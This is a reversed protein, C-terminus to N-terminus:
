PMPGLLYPDPALRNAVRLADAEFLELALKQALMVDGVVLEGEPMFCLVRVSRGNKDLQVVNAQSGSRIRYRRGTEGGIVDFYGRREYQDRQAPSLNKKLLRFGRAHAERTAASWGWLTRLEFRESASAIIFNSLFPAEEGHGGIIQHFLGRLIRRVGAM